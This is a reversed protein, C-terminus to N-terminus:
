FRPPPTPPNGERTPTFATVGAHPATPAVMGGLPGALPSSVASSLQSVGPSLLESGRVPEQM